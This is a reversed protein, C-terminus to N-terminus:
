DFFGSSMKKNNNDLRQTMELGKPVRCVIAWWAGRDMPNELCSYQFPNGNGEGPSRGFAPILGKDGANALLNKAVLSGPFGRVENLSVYVPLSGRGGKVHTGEQCTKNEQGEGGGKRGRGKQEEDKETQIDNEVRHSCFMGYTLSIGGNPM